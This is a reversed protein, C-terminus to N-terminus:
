RYNSDASGEVITCTTFQLHYDSINAGSGLITEVLGAMASSTGSSSIGDDDDQEADDQDADGDQEARRRGRAERAVDDDYLSDGGDIRPNRSAEGRPENPHREHLSARTTGAADSEGRVRHLLAAAALLRVQLSRPKM